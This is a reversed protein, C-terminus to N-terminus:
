NATSLSDNQQARKIIEESPVGLNEIALKADEALENEPFQQILKEYSQKASNLDMLHNELVFGKMFLAEAAFHSKPYTNVLKDFVALAEKHMETNKNGSAVAGINQGAKFLFEPAREDDPYKEVFAIYADKLKVMNDLSYLSDQAELEDIEKLANEKPSQCAAIIAVCAIVFLLHKKM